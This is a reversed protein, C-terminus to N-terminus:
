FGRRNLRAIGAGIGLASFFSASFVGTSIVLNDLYKEAMARQESDSVGELLSDRSRYSKTRVVGFDNMEAAKVQPVQYFKANYYGSTLFSLGVITLNAYL